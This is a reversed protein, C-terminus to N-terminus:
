AQLTIPLARLVSFGLVVAGGKTPTLQTSIVLLFTTKGAGNPGLLTFLEGKSIALNVGKLAEVKEKGPYVKALDLSKVAETM